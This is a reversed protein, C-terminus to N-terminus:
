WMKRNDNKSTMTRPECHKRLQWFDTCHNITLLLQITTSHHQIVNYVHIKEIWDKPQSGFLHKYM